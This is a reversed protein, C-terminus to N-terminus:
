GAKAMVWRVLAPFLRELFVAIKGHATFVCVRRRKAIAKVMVRAADEVPWILFGPRPDGMEPHFHGENDVRAINSEVFGPHITTCSVGSGKLEVQLTQGISHVAAKSAGYAGGGPSPLFGAVSGILALRGGTKRLHPLAFKATLALGTVNVALQRRWEDERLNEIKGVVGFGANAIAIDVRGFLKEVEGVCQEISPGSSVDCFIAEAVGGSERIQAVLQQLVGMRRASAAVKAGKSAFLIALQRGIGSSAGTVWVVKGSFDM